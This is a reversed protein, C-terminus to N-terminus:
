AAGDPRILMVALSSTKERGWLFEKMRQFLTTPEPVNEPVDAGYLLYTEGVPEEGVLFTLRGAIAGKSVPARALEPLMIKARVREGEALPYVVDAATVVEVQPLLSGTVPLSRFM